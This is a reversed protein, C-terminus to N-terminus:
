GKNKIKAWTDRLNVSRNFILQESTTDKSDVVFYGKRLFQFYEGPKADKLSPEVFCDKLVELSNPNLYEKYDKNLSPDNLNEETFLKDYLRIEAKEAHKASVWHSTGKV